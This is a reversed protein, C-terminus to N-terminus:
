LSLLMNLRKTISAKSFKNQEFSENQSAEIHNM